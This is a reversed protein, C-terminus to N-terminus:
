FHKCLSSPLGKFNLFLMRLSRRKFVYAVIKKKIRYELISPIRPKKLQELPVPNTDNTSKKLEAHMWSEYINGMHFALNRSTTLSYYGLKSPLKDLSAESDGGMKYNSSFKAKNIVERKFTSVVHGAGIVASYNNRFIKMTYSLRAKPYDEKWGISRYFKKLAEPEDIESFLVKTSFLHNFILQESNYQYSLFQPILGVVGAKPFNNFVKVTNNQWGTKFLVDADSITVLPMRHGSAGKLAANIKGINSTTILEHIQESNKLDNLYNHIERCSGNDVITIFTNKHTTAIISNLCLQLICLSDKFYDTTKPIYVPVVIQHSYRNEELKKDKNPNYGKRM